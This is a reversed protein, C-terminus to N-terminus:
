QWEIYLYAEAIKRPFLTTNECNKLFLSIRFFIVFVSFLSNSLLSFKKETKQKRNEYNLSTNYKNFDNIVKQSM